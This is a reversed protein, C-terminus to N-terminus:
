LIMEYGKKFLIKKSAALAFAWLLQYNKTHSNSNAHKSHM